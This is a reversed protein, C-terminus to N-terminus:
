EQNHKFEELMENFNKHKLISEVHLDLQPYPIRIHHKLLADHIAWLYHSKTYSSRKTAADDVWVSVKFELSNPGMEDIYVRPEPVWSKKLTIPVKLVAEKVVKKVLDKDSDYTVSFHIQVRRFPERHTWNIVRATTLESNPVMVAIGDNTKIYTSRVNIEKVEGLVGSELEIYDGVKLQNEFLIVIGSVFNNFINQMGFGLGVGLAGAILVFNSFDFGLTTLAIIIGLAIIFYQFLRSIRYLLSLRIGQRKLAFKKLTVKLGRALWISIAIIVVFKIIGWLDIVTRGIKFLPQTLWISSSRFISVITDWVDTLFKNIGGQKSTVAKNVINLLFETDQIENALKTVLVIAQESLLLIKGQLERIDKSKDDAVEVNISLWEQARQIDRRISLEWEKLSENLDQVDDNWQKAKEELDSFETDSPFNLYQVLELEINSLIHQNLALAEEISAQSLEQDLLQNALKVVEGRQSFNFLTLSSAERERLLEKKIEWNRKAQDLELQTRKLEDIDSVVKERAAQLEKKKQDLYARDVEIARELRDRKENALQLSIQFNVLQLGDMVKKMSRPAATEYEASLDRIRFEGARIQRGRELLDEQDTQLLIERNRLERNLQIIDSVRYTDSITTLAPLKEEPQSKAVLYANLNSEIRSVSEKLKEREEEPTGEVLTNLSEIFQQIRAPLETQSVDFYDWWANKLEVPNPAIVTAPKVDPVQAFTSSLLCFVAFFVSFRM